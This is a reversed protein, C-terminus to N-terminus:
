ITSQLWFFITALSRHCFIVAQPTKSYIRLLARVIMQMIKLPLAFIICKFIASTFIAHSDTVKNFLSKLVPTKRHINCSKQVGVFSQKQVYSMLRQFRLVKVKFFEEFQSLVIAFVHFDRQSHSFFFNEKSPTKLESRKCKKQPM